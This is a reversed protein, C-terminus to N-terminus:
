FKTALSHYIFNKENHFCYTVDNSRNEFGPKLKAIINVVISYSRRHVAM